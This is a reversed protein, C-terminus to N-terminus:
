SDAPASHFKGGSLLFAGELGGCGEESGLGDRVCASSM